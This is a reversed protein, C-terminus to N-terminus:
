KMPNAGPVMPITHQVVERPVGKMDSYKWAFCDKYKKLMSILEADQGETLDKAIMVPNPEKGEEVLNVEKTLDQGDYIKEGAEKPTRKAIQYM